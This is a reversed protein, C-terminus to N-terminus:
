NGGSRWYDWREWVGECSGCASLDKNAMWM